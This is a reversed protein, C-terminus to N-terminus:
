MTTSTGARRARRRAHHRLRLRHAPRAPHEADPQHPRHLGERLRARAQAAARDGPAQPEAVGTGGQGGRRPEDPQRADQPQAQRVHLLRRAGHHHRLGIKRNGPSRRSGKRLHGAPRDQRPRRRSLGERTPDPAATPRSSSATGKSTSAAVGMSNAVPYDNPETYKAGAFAALDGYGTCDVFSQRLCRAGPAAKSSSAASAPVTPRRGVVLTNVAVFM